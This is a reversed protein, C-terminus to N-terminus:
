TIRQFRGGPLTAVRGDLELQLLIASLAEITLNSRQALTDMDVPDYGMAELAPLVSAQPTVPQAPMPLAGLEELIDQASEVLKAGQKILHHCGKSQPSHISGPIAFVERGQELAMRATILSGSQLSAEVVLTGASLGSIIRNRRPFNAALPPTGLAFESIILGDKALQHALERNAAPYVKDLGTGIVAISSGSGRLGGRHAAADIGHAMGSVICLGADSAALAFDEANKLGAPSANRSGVVALAPAGLLEQRGKVYLLMPPDSTNLLAQPYESDALTLVANNPDQLWAELPALSSEDLGRAIADAVAPRVVERLARASTAYIQEPTGFALLLHRLSENGLGPILSLAVWHALATDM